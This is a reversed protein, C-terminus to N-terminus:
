EDNLKKWKIKNPSKKGDNIRKYCEKCRIFYERKIEKGDELIIRITKVEKGCDLCRHEEKFRKRKIKGYKKRYDLYYKFNWHYYCMGSKNAQGLTRPCGKFSCRKPIKGAISRRSIKKDEDVIKERRANLL